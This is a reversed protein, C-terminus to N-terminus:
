KWSKEGFLFLKIVSGKMQHGFRILTVNVAIKGGGSLVQHSGL